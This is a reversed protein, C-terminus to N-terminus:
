QVEMRQRAEIERRVEHVLKRVSGRIVPRAIIGPQSGNPNAKLRYTVRTGDALSTLEWQGEYTSFSKGCVDRFTLVTEGRERVDLVVHMPLSVIWARGVGRQELLVRGPQRERINSERISSVFRAIGEYDTLVQWVVDPRAHVDFTAVVVYGSDADQVDVSVVDDAAFVTASSCTLAVILLLFASLCTKTMRYGWTAAPGFAPLASDLGM